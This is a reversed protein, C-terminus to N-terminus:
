RRDMVINGDKDKIRVRGNAYRTEQRGDPYVIKATGDPYERKKYQQTHIERQGNPFEMTKDGNKDVRIVTGDPFISEETGNLFLYKITQDPFTIERTGDPYHKEMQNNPFQLIELGDPYTTHTTQADAYYYVVRQDPLIQKVDGNFFSVIIYQGEASIEKRTGNAFLIERAGNSYIRELKGDPHQIEEYDESGKDIHKTNLLVRKRPVSKKDEQADVESSTDSHLDDSQQVATPQRRPTDEAILVQGVQSTAMKKQPVKVPPPMSKETTEEKLDPKVQDELKQQVIAPKKFPQSFSSEKKNVQDKQWNDLRRRELIKVEEKLEFNEVEVAQIRDRLRTTSATWRSEKRKLEEQLESLQNKLMEIEEREKKDPLARATKQYQEFVKKEHKLKKMEQKKFEQLRELEEAKQKEFEAMEKKLKELGEEREKRLKALAANEQRFREIETELEMLKDRLVKSQVGSGVEAQRIQVMQQQNPQIQPSVAKKQPKLQPFLKTVLKSTPPTEAGNVQGASSSGHANGAEDQNTVGWSETDDFEISRSLPPVVQQTLPRPSAMKEEHPLHYYGKSVANNQEEIKGLNDSDEDEEEDEEDSSEAESEEQQNTKSVAHEEEINEEQASGKVKGFVGETSSIVNKEYIESESSVEAGYHPVEVKNELKEEEEINEEAGLGNLQGQNKEQFEDNSHRTAIKRHVVKVVNTDFEEDLNHEEQDVLTKNNELENELDTDEESISSSSDSSDSSEENESEEVTKELRTDQPSQHLHHKMKAAKIHKSLPSMQHNVQGKKAKDRDILKVVLSSNSSFSINDDAYQELLEFEELEETEIKESEARKKVASLFSADISSTMGANDGMKELSFPKGVPMSKSVPSPNYMKPSPKLQLSPIPHHPSSPTKSAIKRPPTVRNEEIHQTAKPSHSENKSSSKQTMKQRNESSLGFRTLGQGRKLFSKVVNKTTKNAQKQVDEKQKEQQLQQELLEEFTRTRNSLGPKIPRDDDDPPQSNEDAKEPRKKESELKNTHKNVSQQVHPQQMMESSREDLRVDMDEVSPQEEVAPLAQSPPSLEQPAESMESATDPLPYVGETGFTDANSETDSHFEPEPLAKMEPDDQYQPSRSVAMFGSALAQPVTRGQPRKDSRPPTSFPTSSAPRFKKPSGGGWQQERQRAIMNQIRGQEEKLSQLQQQQQQMLIDQQQLQMQRLQKFRQLLQAQEVAQQQEYLDSVQSDNLNEKGEEMMDTGQIMADFNVAKMFNNVPLDLNLMPNLTVGPSLMDGSGTLNHSPSGTGVGSGSGIFSRSLLGSGSQLYGANMLQSHMLQTQLLPDMYGPGSGSGSGFSQGSGTGFGPHLYGSGFGHGSGQRLSQGNIMQTQMMPDQIHMAGSGSGKLEASKTHLLPNFSSVNRFDGQGMPDSSVLRDKGSGDVSQLLARGNFQQVQLPDFNKGNHNQESLPATQAMRQQLSMFSSNPNYGLVVGARSSWGDQPINEKLHHQENRTNDM